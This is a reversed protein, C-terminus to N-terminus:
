LLLGLIEGGEDEVVREKLELYTPFPLFSPFAERGFHPDENWPLLGKVWVVNKFCRPLQKRLENKDGNHM